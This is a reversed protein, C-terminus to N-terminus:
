SGGSEEAIDSLLKRMKIAGTELDEVIADQVGNADGGRLSALVKRHPIVGSDDSVYNPYLLSLSPGIAVWLGEIITFLKENNSAKYLSFHFQANLDLAKQYQRKERAIEFRNEIQELNGVLSQDAREAAMEAAAPELLLRIQLFKNYREVSLKPVVITRPGLLELSGEAILKGLAERAPTISIGLSEALRRSTLREGPQFIGSNLAQKVSRFAKDTLSDTDGLKQLGTKGMKRESPEM